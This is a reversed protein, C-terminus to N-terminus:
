LKADPIVLSPDVDMTRGFGKCTECAGIPNNFSFLAANPDAYPIQCRACRSTSPSTSSSPGSM